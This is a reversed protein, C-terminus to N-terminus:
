KGFLYKWAALGVSKGNSLKGMDKYLRKVAAETQVGYFGTAGAPIAYGKAILERQL